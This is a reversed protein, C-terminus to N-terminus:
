RSTDQICILKTRSGCISATPQSLPRLVRFLLPHARKSVQYPQVAWGGDHYHCCLANAARWLWFKTACVGLTTALICIQCHASAFINWAEAKLIEMKHEFRTFAKKPQTILFSYLVWPTALVIFHCTFVIRHSEEARYKRQPLLLAHRM